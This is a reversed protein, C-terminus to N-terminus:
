CKPVKILVGIVNPIVTVKMNWLIKLEWTLELYKDKNKNDKLKVRHDVPVAFNM